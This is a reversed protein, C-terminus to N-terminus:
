VSDDHDVHTTHTRTLITLWVGGFKDRALREALARAETETAHWSHHESGWRRPTRVEWRTAIRPDPNM